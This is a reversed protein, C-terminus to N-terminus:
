VRKWHSRKNISSATCLSLMVEGSLSFGGYLGEQQLETFKKILRYKNFITKGQNTSSSKANLKRLNIESLRLKPASSGSGGSPNTESNLRSAVLTKLGKKIHSPLQTELKALLDQHSKKRSHGPVGMAGDRAVGILERPAAKSNYYTNWNGEMLPQMDSRTRHHKPRSSMRPHAPGERHSQVVEGDQKLEDMRIRLERNRTLLGEVARQIEDIGGELDQREKLIEEQQRQIVAKQSQLFSIVSDLSGLDAKSPFVLGETSGDM